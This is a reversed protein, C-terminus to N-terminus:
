KSDPAGERGSQGDALRSAIERALEVIRDNVRGLVDALAENEDAAMDKIIEDPSLIEILKETVRVASNLADIEAKDLAAGDGAPHLLAEVRRAIAISAQRLRDVVRADAESRNWGNRKAQRDLSDLTRGTAEALTDLPVRYGEVIIRLARERAANFQPM